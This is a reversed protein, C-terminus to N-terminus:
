FINKAYSYLYHFNTSLAFPCTAVELHLIIIYCGHTM